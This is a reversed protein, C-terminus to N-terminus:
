GGAMTRFFWDRLRPFRGRREAADAAEGVRLVSAIGVWRLPEIEWRRPRGRVFPLATRPSEEGVVIEALSRGALHAAAVGSGTYGGIAGFGTARDFTVFPRGDRAIALPGGWAHTIAVRELMPLMEILRARVPAFHPDDPGSREEIRSGFRYTGRSGFAIRGDRTKQGYTVMRRGDGFLERDALGIEDWLADSLPETAIMWSHVPIVDRAVGPLRPTYGETARLVVPAQVEGAVSRVRGPEVLVAPSEEFLTAGGREVARALGLVLRAPDVAAAHRELLGGLALPTGLRRRCEGADMWLHDERGFGCAELLRRRERLRHLEAENAAFHLMGGRHYDCDIRESRCLRGIEDVAEFVARQLAIGVPRTAARALLAEVGVFHCSCWGGNRGSAGFGIREAELLVVRLGPRLRTLYYATWLGSYGGGVIAVDADCPGM